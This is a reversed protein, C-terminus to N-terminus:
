DEPFEIEALKNYLFPCEKKLQSRDKLYYYEFGIAFYERLSTAAYPSPFLGGILYWMSDYGVTKYFYMDIDDDYTYTNRIKSLPKYENSLLIHYLRQRKGLFERKIIQDNYIINYYKEEVSHAIEHIIDDIMDDANVQDNTVYIAGDDYVANSEKEKFVDFQGVYIIDIHTMLHSPIRKAIFSFVSDPNINNPLMDKIYIDINKMRYHTRLKKSEKISNELWNM